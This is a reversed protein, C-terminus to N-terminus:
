TPRPLRLSFTSGQGVVSDVRLEGRMANALERSISLGLGMGERVGGMGGLHGFPEFVNGLRAAPIGTGTDRVDVRAMTPEDACPAASVAIRGGIPTFKIANTLLNLMIQRTKESDAAISLSADTPPAVQLDLQKAKALPEVISVVDALFPSLAITDRTYDVADTQIRVLNLVSTILTLLHRQNRQVRHLADRQAQNLPGHVGMEVLEVHGAIANLPTRLEHSMATLFDSKARNASEAEERAVRERALSGRLAEEANRRAALTERLREELERRHEVETELARARQQLISIEVLRAAESAQVYQETPIVHSHQRCLEHFRRGDTEKYFNGMAYACLLSFSHSTALTNWLEELQIAGDANGEKWLLDVMEGYARFRRRPDGRTVTEILPGVVSEFRTPDPTAGDMIQALVERSDLMVLRGRAVAGDVDVSKARLRDAFLERRKSDAVAVVTEGAALGGALFDAVAGALFHENEYFQVIHDHPKPPSQPGSFSRASSIPRVTTPHTM